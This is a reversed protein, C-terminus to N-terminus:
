QPTSNMDQWTGWGGQIKLIGWVPDGVHDKFYNCAMMTLRCDGNVKTGNPREIKLTPYTESYLFNGAADFVYFIQSGSSHVVGEAEVWTAAYTPVTFAIALVCVVTAILKKM